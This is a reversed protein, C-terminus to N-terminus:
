SLILTTSGVGAVTFTLNNGSVSIKVGTGIGSSFGGTATIIGVCEIGPTVTPEADSQLIRVPGHVQLVANSDVDTTGIGVSAFIADGELCDLAIEDRISTTGIGVSGEEVIVTNEPSDVGQGIQLPALPKETGGTSSILVGEGADGNLDIRLTGEIDLDNATSIGSNIDFNGGTILNNGAADKLGTSGGTVYVENVTLSSGISVNSDISLEQGFSATGTVTLGTTSTIGSVQLRTSPTTIGLGLHGDNTLSMLQNSQFHWYFNGTGVGATGAQLYYNVNGNGYNVLDLAEYESYPFLGSDNGYRLEGFDNSSTFMESRGVSVKSVGFNSTVSIQSSGDKLLQLGGNPASSTGIGVSGDVVLKNTVTAVGVTLDDIDVDATSTLSAATTATGTLNGTVDGTIGGIFSSAAVANATLIGVVINPVGVLGEAGTAIGTVNGTINGSFGGTATVIGSISVDAPLKSNLLVPLRDNSITGLGINAGDLSTLESGMGVYSHATVIGTAYINGESTIGVGHGFNLPDTTGGIQLTHRPDDTAVGVYGRNYISTFGLGVDKDLWQSTPMGSLFRADGYYTVIGTPDTATIFGSSISVGAGVVSSTFAVEDITAKGSVVLTQGRLQSATAFGSVTVNGGRVDLSETPVTTGIGVLGTQTVILKNDDVQVGNRFNFQKNYNAM